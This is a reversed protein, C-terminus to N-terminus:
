KQAGEFHDVRWTQDYANANPDGVLWPNRELLCTYKMLFTKNFIFLKNKISQNIPGYIYLNYDFYGHIIHIWSQRKVPFFLCRWQYIDIDCVVCLDDQRGKMETNLM